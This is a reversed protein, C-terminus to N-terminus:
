MCNYMIIVVNSKKAMNDSYKHDIHLPVVKVFASFISLYRTLIRAIHIAFCSRLTQLDNHTPLLCDMSLTDIDVSPTHDSYSSLDVRDQVAFSNFYRLSQTRSDITQHRPRVTKDINDGVIKFGQWEPTSFAHTEENDATHNDGQQTVEDDEVQRDGELDESHFSSLSTLPSYEPGTISSMESYQDQTLINQQDSMGVALGEESDYSFNHSNDFEDCFATNM